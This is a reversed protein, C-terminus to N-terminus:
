DMITSMASELIIDSISAKDAGGIASTADIVIDILLGNVRLFVESLGNPGDNHGVFQGPNELAPTLTGGSVSLGDVDAWSGNALPVVADLHARGWAIVQAGRDADYGGGAPLSGLADTGYLADYLSGWRANAANLAFRANTIPVVLKLFAQYAEADHDQGRNAVHWADIQGQIEARKELLARNTPGKEHVLADFGAWFNEASVGTGPLAKTEIFDVLVPDVTLGNRAIFDSM